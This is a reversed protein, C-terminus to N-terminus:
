TEAPLVRLVENTRTCRHPAPSPVFPARHCEILPAENAVRDSVLVHENHGGNIPESAHRGCQRFLYLKEGKASTGAITM